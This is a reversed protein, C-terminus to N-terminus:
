IRKTQNRRRIKNKANSHQEETLNRYELLAEKLAQNPKPPTELAQLFADRDRDSLLLSDRKKLIEASRELAIMRLFTSLNVGMFHAAAEMQQKEEQNTRFEIRDQKM